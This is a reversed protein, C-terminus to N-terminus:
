SGGRTSNASCAALPNFFCAGRHNLSSSHGGRPLNAVACFIRTLKRHIAKMCIPILCPQIRRAFREKYSSVPASSSEETASPTIQLAIVQM